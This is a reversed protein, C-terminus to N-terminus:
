HDFLSAAVRETLYKPLFPSLASSIRNMWGPVAEKKKCFLAKIAESAVVEATMGLRRTRKLVTPAHIGARHNFNTATPGPNFCTVSVGKKRLEFDLARSFQLVFSKSAAYCALSPVAQYAATSAINLVYAPSNKKLDPLLLHTLQVLTIMNLEMMDIMAQLSSEDFHGWVGFGANNVLVSVDLQHQHVHKLVATAAQRQCLDIALYDVKVAFKGTIRAKAESLERENRAILLLDYGKEALGEAIYLGIGKSAGTVLAYSM